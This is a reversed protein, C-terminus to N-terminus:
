HAASENRDKLRKELIPQLNDPLWRVLVDHFADTHAIKELAEDLLKVTVEGQKNKTCGIYGISLAPAETLSLQTLDDEFGMSHALYYHESPYGLLIDIRKKQLMYTLSALTDRGPRSIINADHSENIVKDINAGFSRSMSVGLALNEALLSKLSVPKTSDLKLKTALEKRIAISPSLGVTSSHETFQIHQKRHESQYLSLMCYNNQPNSLEHVARSAPLLTRKFSVEPLAKELLKIVSEDRGTGEYKDHMIYYPAFDVMIWEIAKPQKNAYAPLCFLLLLISWVSRM